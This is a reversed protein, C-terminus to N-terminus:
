ATTQRNNERQLANQGGNPRIGKRTKTGRAAFAQIMRGCAFLAVSEPTQEVGVPVQRGEKNAGSRAMGGGPFGTSFATERASKLGGPRDLL